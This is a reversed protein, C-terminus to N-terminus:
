LSTHIINEVFLGASSSNLRMAMKRKVVLKPSPCALGPVAGGIGLNEVGTANSM